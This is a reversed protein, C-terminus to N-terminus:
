GNLEGNPVPDEYPDKWFQPPAQEAPKRAFAGRFEMVDDPFCGFFFKVRRIPDRTSKERCKHEIFRALEAPEVGNERALAILAPVQDPGRIAVGNRSLVASVQEVTRANPSEWPNKGPFGDSPSAVAEDPVAHASDAFDSAYEAAAAKKQSSEKYLNAPLGSSSLHARDQREFNAISRVKGSLQPATRQRDFIQHWIFHYTNSKRGARNQHTILGLEELVQIDNQVQRASKGLDAAIREYGPWCNGNEGARGILYEYVRKPGDSIKRGDIERHAGIIAPLYIPAIGRSRRGENDRHVRHPEFVDGVVPHYFGNTTKTQEPLLHSVSLPKPM